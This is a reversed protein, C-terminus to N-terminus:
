CAFSKRIIQFKRKLKPSENFYIFEALKKSQKTKLNINFISSIPKIEVSNINLYKGIFNQFKQLHTKRGSLGIRGNNKNTWGDGDIMGRWFHKNARLLPHITTGNTKNPIIGYQQLDYSIINSHFSFRYSNNDGNTNHRIKHESNLFSKFKKIHDLDREALHLKIEDSHGDRQLVCGDAMLFGLWYASENNIESFVKKDINLRNQTERVPRNSLIIM